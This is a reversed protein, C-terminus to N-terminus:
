KLINLVFLVSPSFLKHKKKPAEYHMKMFEKADFDQDTRSPLTWFEASIQM